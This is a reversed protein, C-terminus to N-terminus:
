KFFNANELTIWNGVDDPLRSLQNMYAMLTTLNVLKCISDPLATIKNESIDIDKLAVPSPHRPCPPPMDALSPEALHKSIARLLLKHLLLKGLTGINEPLSTLSNESVDLSELSVLAEIGALSRIENGKLCLGTITTCRFVSQPINTLTPLGQARRAGESMDRMSGIHTVDMMEINIVGLDFESPPPHYAPVQFSGDAAGTDSTARSASKLAGAEQLIAVCEKRDDIPDADRPLFCAAADALAANAIADDLATNHMRDVINLAETHACLFKLVDVRNNCVALHLATRGDYNATAM